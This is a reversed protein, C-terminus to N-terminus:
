TQYRAEPQVDLDTGPFINNKNIWNLVEMAETKTPFCLAHKLDARSKIDFLLFCNEKKNAGICAIKNSDQFSIVYSM